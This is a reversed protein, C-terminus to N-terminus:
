HDPRSPRAALVQEAWALLERARKGIQVTNGARDQLLYGYFHEDGDQDEGIDESVSALDAWRVVTVRRRYFSVSALGAEFEHLTPRLRLAMVAPLLMVVGLAALDPVPLSASRANATLALVATVVPLGILFGFVLARGAVKSWGRRWVRVHRGLGFEAGIRDAGGGCESEQRCSWGGAVERLQSRREMVQVDHVVRPAAGSIGNTRDATM